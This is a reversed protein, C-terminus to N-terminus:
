RDGLDGRRVDRQGARRGARVHAADDVRWRRRTRVRARRRRSEGRRERRHAGDHRQARDVLRLQRRRADGRRRIALTSHFAYRGNADRKFAFVAGAPQPGTDGRGRGGAQGGGRGRGGGPAEKGVLLWEGSAAIAGFRLPRRRRHALRLRLQGAAAPEATTAAAPPAAPIAAAPVDTVAVTSRSRGRALRSPSCTCPPPAPASSCGTAMRRWRRASDM